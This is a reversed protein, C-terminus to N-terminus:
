TAPLPSAAAAGVVTLWERVRWSRVLGNIVYPDARAFAEVAAPSEAAFLLLGSDIPDALAGGLLLAGRQVAERAHQLHGQRLATRRELYDEGYAYFLLYHKTM